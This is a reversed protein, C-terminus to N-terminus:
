SYAIFYYEKNTNYIEKFSTKDLPSENKLWKNLLSIKYNLKNLYDFLNEPSSNYFNSAGLGFEFIIIPKNNLLLNKAGKIVNFEGGEVDIKIFDIKTDNPILNDLTKLPVKIEEVEPNDIKYDRKLIGSYAPANKM